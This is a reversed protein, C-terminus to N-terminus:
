QQNLCAQTFAEAMQWEIQNLLRNNEVRVITEMVQYHFPRQLDSKNTLITLSGKDLIRDSRLM